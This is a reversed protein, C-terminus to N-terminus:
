KYRSPMTSLRQQAPSTRLTDSRASIPTLVSPYRSIGCRRLGLLVVRAPSAEELIELFAAELADPQDDGIGAHPQGFAGGPEKGIGGPLPTDHMSVTVDEAVHERGLHALDRRRLAIWAPASMAAARCLATWTLSFSRPRRRVLAAPEHFRRDLLREGVIGKGLLMPPADGLAAVNHHHVVKRDPTAATRSTISAAPARGCLAVIRRSLRPITPEARCAPYADVHGCNQESM